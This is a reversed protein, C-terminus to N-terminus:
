AALMASRAVRLLRFPGSFAAINRSALPRPRMGALQEGLQLHVLDLLDGLGHRAQAGHRGLQDLRQQAIEDLADAAGVPQDAAVVRGLTQEVLEQPGVLHRCIM